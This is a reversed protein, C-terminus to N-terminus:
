LKTGYEGTCSNFEKRTAENKGAKNIMCNIMYEQCSNMILNGKLDKEDNVPCFTMILAILVNSM